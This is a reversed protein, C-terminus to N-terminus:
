NQTLINLRKLLSKITLQLSYRYTILYNAFNSNYYIGFSSIKIALLSFLYNIFLFYNKLPTSSIM